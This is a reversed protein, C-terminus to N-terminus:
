QVCNREQGGAGRMMGDNSSLSLSCTFVYSVFNSLVSTHGRAWVEHRPCGCTILMACQLKGYCYPDQSVASPLEFRRSRIGTPASACPPGFFQHVSRANYTYTATDRSEM